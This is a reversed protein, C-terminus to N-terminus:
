VHGTKTHVGLQTLWISGNKETRQILKKKLLETMQAESIHPVTATVQLDRLCDRIETNSMTFCGGHAAIIRHPLCGM